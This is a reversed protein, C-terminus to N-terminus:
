NAVLIKGKKLYLTRAVAIVAVTQRIKCNNSIKLKYIVIKNIM